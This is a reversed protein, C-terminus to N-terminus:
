PSPKSLLCLCCMHKTRNCQGLATRQTCSLPSPRPARNKNQKRSYSASRPACLCGWAFTRLIDLMGRIYQDAHAHYCTGILAKASTCACQWLTGRETSLTKHFGLHRSNSRFEWRSRGPICAPQIRLLAWGGSRLGDM